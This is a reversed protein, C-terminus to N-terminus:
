LEEEILTVSEAIRIADEAGSNFDLLFVICNHKDIWLLYGRDPEDVFTYLEGPLGNIEISEAEYTEKDLAGLHYTDKDGIQLYHFWILDQNDNQNKYGISRDRTPGWYDSTLEYGEPLWTPEYNPLEGEQEMGDKFLWTVEDERYRVRWRLGTETAFADTAILATIVLAFILCAAAASRISRLLLIHRRPPDIEARMLVDDDMDTLAEMIDTAKM